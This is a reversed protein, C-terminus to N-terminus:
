TYNPIDLITLSTNPGRGQKRGDIVCAAIIYVHGFRVKESVHGMWISGLMWGFGTGGGSREGEQGQGAKAKSTCTPTVDGLCQVPVLVVVQTDKGWCVASSSAAATQATNFRARPRARRGLNTSMGLEVEVPDSLWCLIKVELIDLRATVLNRPRSAALRTM